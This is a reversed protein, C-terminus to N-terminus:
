GKLGKLVKHNIVPMARWLLHPLATQPTLRGDSGIERQALLVCWTVSTVDTVRDNKSKGFVCFQSMFTYIDNQTFYTM